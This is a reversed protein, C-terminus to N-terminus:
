RSKIKIGTEDELCQRLDDITVYGQEYSDYLDLCMEAFREERSKGDVEKKMLQGYKDHMVMVPIALMLTFATHIAKETADQKLAQIQSNNFNYTKGAKVAERQQRRMEARNM